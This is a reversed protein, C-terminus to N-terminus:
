KDNDILQFNDLKDKNKLLFKIKGKNIEQRM